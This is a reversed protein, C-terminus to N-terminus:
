RRQYLRGGDRSTYAWSQLLHWGNAAMAEDLLTPNYRKSHYISFSHEGPRDTAITVRWDVAYSGPIPCSALDLTTDLRISRLGPVHRRFPGKLFEEVRRELSPSSHPLSKSLRPDNAYIEEPNDPSGCAVPLDILLLDGEAFGGLSNRLFLLENDLNPFTYGFMCLLRRRPRPTRLRGMYMPLNHFNGQLAYVFVPLDALLEAAHRYGEALLPQSIELLFLRLNTMNEDRLLSQALRAEDRAQGAGLGIIDLEHDGVAHRVERALSWYPVVEKGRSWADQATIRCWAAASAPDIYLHTQEIQGGSGNLKSVLERILKISDYEPAIWCNCRFANEDPADAANEDTPASLPRLKLEEIAMLNAVITRTPRNRGTELNRITSDSVGSMKALTLRTLGCDERRQRVLRGWAQWDDPMLWPVEQTEDSM